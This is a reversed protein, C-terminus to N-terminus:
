FDPLSDGLYPNGWMFGGGPLNKIPEGTSPDRRWGPPLPRGKSKGAPIARIRGKRRRPRSRDATARAPPAAAMGEGYGGFTGRDPAVQQLAGLLAAIAASPDPQMQPM